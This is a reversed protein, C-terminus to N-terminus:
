FNYDSLSQILVYRDTTEDISEDGDEVTDLSQAFEGGWDDLNVEFRDLNIEEPEYELPKVEFPKFHNPDQSALWVGPLNSDQQVFYVM